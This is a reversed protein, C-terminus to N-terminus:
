LSSGTRGASSISYSMSQFSYFSIGVPLVISLVRTPESGVLEFLRNLNAQVFVFYKFFGLLALNTVISTAVAAKRQATSAGARTIAIGCFWDVLTSALMLTVFWPSWWGYFVYSVLALFANRARRPLAYYGLLVLPLFYFLFIHSTFVM